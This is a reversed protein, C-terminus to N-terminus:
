RHIPGVDIGLDDAIGLAREALRRLEQPRMGSRLATDLLIAMSHSPDTDLAANLAIGALPGDGRVYASYALLVAANARDSGPLSQVLTVWLQEAAAAYEGVALALLVDRVTRDRLAVALEAIQRPIPAVGSDLDAIRYLVQELGRRRYGDPDARRIAAVYRDHSMSLAEELHIAVAQASDRDQAVLDTLQSRSSHIPRGDLVYAFTVMSTAPDPLAGHQDTDLLSWWRRGAEIAAVAWAGKLTVEEAALQRAFAAILKGGPTAGGRTRPRRPGRMRDDIIVALVETAAEAACIDAVASAIVAALGRKARGQDLDFRLVPGITSGSGPATPRRLVVVVLSREPVFEILAPLAALLEGPDDVRLRPVLSQARHAEGPRATSEDVAPPQADDTNDAM